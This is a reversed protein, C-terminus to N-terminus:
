QEISLYGLLGYDIIDGPKIVADTAAPFLISFQQTEHKKARELHRAQIKGYHREVELRVLQIKDTREVPIVKVVRVRLWHQLAAQKPLSDPSPEAFAFGAIPVILLMLLCLALGLRVHAIM